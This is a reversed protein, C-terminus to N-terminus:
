RERKVEFAMRQGAWRHVLALRGPAAGLLADLAAASEGPGALLVHTVGARQFFALQEAPTAPVEGSGHYSFLYLPVTRRGGYLWVLPDGDSALVADQPLTEVWPLLESFNASIARASVTWWRGAFGRAEYRGYGFTLAAALVGVLLRVQIRRWADVAGAVWALALWPLVAWLFRDPHVPWVALIALYAVLTAGIASRRVLLALGYVGVALAPVGLLYYAAISPVWGLTLVALPRPLDFPRSALAALGSQRVVDGYTGYSAAIAPDIGSRETLTWVGWALAAVAVPFAASLATKRDVRRVLVLYLVIGAGAALGISRTLLALAAAAAALAARRSSGAGTPVEDALVVSCAVLVGFLPESLLATLVTLSPVALSAAAVVTAALWWPAGPPPGLLQRRTAHWAILGAAAAALAVNLLKGALAAAGVPLAGFLPALLLPYLPPFHVAAPMGPLNPHVYGLGHALAWALGAYMGDDYFVGVLNHNLTLAGGALAVAFAAAGAARAAGAPTV